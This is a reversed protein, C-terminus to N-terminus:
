KISIHLEKIMNREKVASRAIAQITRMRNLLIIVTQILSVEFGTNNSDTNIISRLGCRSPKYNVAVLIIM